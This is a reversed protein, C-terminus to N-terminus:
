IWLCIPTYQFACVCVDCMIRVAGVSPGSRYVAQVSGHTARCIYLTHISHSILGSILSSLSISISLSLSLLPCPQSSIFLVVACAVKREDQMGCRLQTNVYCHLCGSFSSKDAPEFLPHLASGRQTSIRSNIAM